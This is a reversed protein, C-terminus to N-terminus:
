SARPCAQGCLWKATAGKCSFLEHGPTVLIMGNARVEGGTNPVAAFHCFFFDGYHRRSKLHVCTMPEVEYPM